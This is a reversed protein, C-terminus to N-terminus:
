YIKYNKNNPENEWMSEEGVGGWGIATIWLLIVNGSWENMWENRLCKQYRSCALCHVPVQEYTNVEGVIIVSSDTEGKVRLIQKMNKPLESTQHM